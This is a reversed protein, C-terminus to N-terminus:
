DRPPRSSRIIGLLEERLREPEAISPFLEAELGRASVWAREGAETRSVLQRRADAPDTERRVLNERQLRDITRSMTQAQVRARAALESQGVPGAGLLDLVVLGAHTLGLEALADAWANEVHRAAMSLLRGTPWSRMRDDESM